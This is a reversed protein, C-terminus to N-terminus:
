DPWPPVNKVEVMVWAIAPLVVVAVLRPVPVGGITARTM